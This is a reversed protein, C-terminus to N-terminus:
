PDDSTAPTSTTVRERRYRAALVRQHERQRELTAVSVMEDRWSLGAGTELTGEEFGPLSCVHRHAQETFGGVLV